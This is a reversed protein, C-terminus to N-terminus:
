MNTKKDEVLQATAQVGSKMRKEEWSTLQKKESVRLM